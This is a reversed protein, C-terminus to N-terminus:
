MGGVWVRIEELLSVRSVHMLLMCLRAFIEYPGWRGQRATVGILVDLRELSGFKRM